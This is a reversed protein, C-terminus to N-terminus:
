NVANSIKIDEGELVEVSLVCVGRRRRWLFLVINAANLQVSFFSFKFLFFRNDRRTKNGGFGGTLFWSGLKFFAAKNIFRGM